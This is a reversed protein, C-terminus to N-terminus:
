KVRAHMQENRNEAQNVRYLGYPVSFFLFPLVTIGAAINRRPNIALWKCFSPRCEFDAEEASYGLKRYNSNLAAFKDDYHHAEKAEASLDTSNPNFQLDNEFYYPYLGQSKAFNVVNTYSTPTWVNKGTNIKLIPLISVLFRKANEFDNKVANDLKIDTKVETKDDQTQFADLAARLEGAKQRSKATKAQTWPKCTNLRQIETEVLEFLKPLLKGRMDHSPMISYSYNSCRYLYAQLTKPVTDTDVNMLDQGYKHKAADRSTLANAATIYSEAVFKSCISSTSIASVPVPQEAKTSNPDENKIGVAYFLRTSFSYFSACQTWRLNDKFSDANTEVLHSLEAAMEKQHVRPRYVHTVTKIDAADSLVFGQHRLHAIKLEKKEVTKSEKADKKVEVVFATHVSDKHGGQNNMMKQAFATSSAGSQAHNPNINFVLIDGAQFHEPGECCAPTKDVLKKRPQLLRVTSM